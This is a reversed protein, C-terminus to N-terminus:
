SFRCILRQDRTPRAIPRDSCDILGETIITNHAVLEIFLNVAKEQSLM